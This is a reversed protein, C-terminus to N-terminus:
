RNQNLISLNLNCICATQIVQSAAEIFHNKHRNKVLLPMLLETLEAVCLDRSGARCLSLNQMTLYAISKKREINTKECLFKIATKQSRKIWFNEVAM